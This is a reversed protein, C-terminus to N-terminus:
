TARGVALQSGVAQHRSLNLYATVSLCPSSLRGGPKVLPCPGERGRGHLGFLAGYRSYFGGWGDKGTKEMGMGVRGAMESGLLGERGGVGDGGEARGARGGEGDWGGRVEGGGGVERGGGM